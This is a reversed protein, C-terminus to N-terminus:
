GHKLIFEVSGGGKKVLNYVMLLIIIQVWIAHPNGLFHITFVTIDRFILFSKSRNFVNGFVFPARCSPELKEQLAIKHSYSKNDSPNTQYSM